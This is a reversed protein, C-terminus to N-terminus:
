ITLDLILQTHLAKEDLEFCLSCKTRHIGSFRLAQGTFTEAGIQLQVNVAKKELLAAPQTPEEALPDPSFSELLFSDPLAEIACTAEEHLMSFDANEATAAPRVFAFAFFHAPRAYSIKKLPKHDKVLDFPIEAPANKPLVGALVLQGVLRTRHREALFLHVEIQTSSAKQWFSRKGKKLTWQAPHWKLETIRGKEKLLDQTVGEKTSVSGMQRSLEKDRAKKEKRQRSM